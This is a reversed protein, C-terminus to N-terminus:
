QLPAKPTWNTSGDPTTHNRGLFYIFLNDIFSEEEVQLCKDPPAEEPSTPLTNQKSMSTGVQFELLIKNYSVKDAIKRAQLSCYLTNKYRKTHVLGNALM